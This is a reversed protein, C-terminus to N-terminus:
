LLDNARELDAEFDVELCTFASIDLPRVRMGDFAIATEIGREFYDQEHCTALHRVLVERDREAVYNIGVAEGLAEEVSKSLSRVFGHEDVTYKIEEEGVSAHNVCISTQDADIAPKLQSLLRPEFVVDGNLWLVGGRPMRTLAHLLSKSTNTEYYDANYLYVADPFAEMILEKKFGVVIHVPHEPYVSVLNEVQQQMISRGDRLTTLPKPYPRGLRSGLGAALIVVSHDPM